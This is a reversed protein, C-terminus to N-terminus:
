SKEELLLKVAGYEDDSIFASLKDLWNLAATRDILGRQYLSYILLGPFVFPVATLGLLRTLKADDTAVQDYGGERFIEILAQDGKIYSSSGKAIKIIGAEINKAVLDADPHGRTKGTNVVEQQVIEPIFTEYHCCVSEKIGAKTLKILCDADMLIKMYDM